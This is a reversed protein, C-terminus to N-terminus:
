SCGDPGSDLPAMIRAAIEPPCGREALEIVAHLDVRGDRALVRALGSAFGAATLRKRRWAVVETALPVREHTAVQRM